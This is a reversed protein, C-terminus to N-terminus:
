APRWGLQLLLGLDDRLARHEVIRGAAFWFVHLQKQSFDKGTAPVGQFTGAHLGCMTAAVVVVNGEAAVVQEEFRLGAFANRLWTATALFGAPGRQQRAADGPDDEAERNVFAPAVIRAALVPDGTEILRFSQAAIQKNLLLRHAASNRNRTM